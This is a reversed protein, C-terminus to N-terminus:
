RARPRGMTLAPFRVALRRLKIKNGRPMVALLAGLMLMPVRKIINNNKAM